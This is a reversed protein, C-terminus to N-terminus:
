GEWFVRLAGLLPPGLILLGIIVAMISAFLVAAAAADKAHKALPHIHPSALNVAQEIATNLLEASIVVAFLTILIAWHTLSLDLWLSLVCVAATILLHIRLNAQTRVAFLFGDIAARVSRAFRRM